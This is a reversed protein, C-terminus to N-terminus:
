LKEKRMDIGNLWADVRSRYIVFTRRHKGFDVVNGFPYTGDAIMNGLKTPSINMEKALTTLAVRESKM